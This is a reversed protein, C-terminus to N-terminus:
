PWCNTRRRISRVRRTVWERMRRTRDREHEMSHLPLQGKSGRRGRIASAELITGDPVLRRSCRTLRYNRHELSDGSGAYVGPGPTNARESALNPSVDVLHLKGQNFLASTCPSLSNQFRGCFNTTVPAFKEAVTSMTRLNQVYERRHLFLAVAYQLPEACAARFCQDKPRM